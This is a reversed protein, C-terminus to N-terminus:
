PPPRLDHRLVVYAAKLICTCILVAFNGSDCRVALPVSWLTYGREWRVLNSTNRLYDSTIPLMAYM